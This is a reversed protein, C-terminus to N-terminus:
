LPGKCCGSLHDDSRPRGAPDFGVASHLRSRPLLHDGAHGRPQRRSLHAVDHRRIDGGRSALHWRGPDGDHRLGPPQPRQQDDEFDAALVNGSTNIGLMWDADRDDTQDVDSSGHTVLPIFNAIGGSGTTDAAGTGDRRFWTEITFEALDLKAPDGFTVYANSSGLDLAHDGPPPADHVTGSGADTFGTGGSIPVFQWDYGDQKLTLKIVGWTSSDYVESNADATAARAYLNSGGTGVTFQRIGYALDAVGDPTQPAFREYAHNHGNVVVDAGYEYLARWIAEAAIETGHNSGSDFKPRHWYAIVNKSANAALDTRLWQEQASGAGYNAESNLVIVHWYSGLDYSYWGNPSGTASAGFYAFYGASANEWDHNGISPYTRSKFAGWTPNYCNAFDTATGNPYANDGTTFVTADPLAAILAATDDARAVSCEGIDGAGVLVPDGTTPAEPTASAEASAPSENDSTDVATVAYYYTTGNVVASDTYTPSTLLAGNLPTGISVPSSTSRYVNYGAIDSETNATWSLTVHGNGASPAVDTPVGPPTTDFEIDFPAGTDWSSGSGTITGDAEPAVSDGVTVGSGEGMGWRAVLGSGSMLPGNISGRIEAGSLARNWVRAEDLAGDFHGVVQTAGGDPSKVMAGLAARQTTLSQVPEDVVLTAELRGDLYLRWTSGDYTAAAHHWVDNTVTTTGLVPHNLGPDNGEDGEEFDAAIVDTADDIGLVWNADVHSDDAEPAGHTVLPVFDPIGSTGTTNPTGTGDRRFWTEITFEALDLKAPDGLAVYASGTGLDLSYAGPPPVEPTASVEDSPNSENGSTDIATIAYFYTTGNVVSTDAYTPNTLLAGNLPTGKTVPPTTSRYVNYGALDTETNATWSLEVQGVAPTAGVGVPATPAITDPAGMSKGAVWTPGNTLTGTLGSGSTDAATSSGTGDNLGWRGVLGSASTLETSLAAQIQAESRAYNWVRPEDIVGSFFGICSSTGTGPIGSSLLSTGLAAHQTSDYRPSISAGLDRSQDLSGDLFLRWVRGDYTAAIHHWEGVPITSVGVVPFNQGAPWSGVAAYSEFDAAIAGADTVGLWYNLDVNSGDGEGCGKTLVPYAQPLATTSGLGGGGTGMLDGGAARKVWAELTFTSAGLAPAPGFTVYDNTGDFALATGADASPTAMTEASLESANTSSDVAAVAYYYTTGNVVSTDTYSSTVLPTAGNLPTGKTVSPTTSRYVNYGAIDSETNAAWTLSVVGNGATTGLGTPAAPPTLDPPLVWTPGNTLTGNPSGAISNVAITGTGENLGWRGILGTGTTLESTMAAQIEAQTRAVNWIRVEDVDGAFFGAPAAPPNASSSTVASGIAAHQISDWRPAVDVGLDLEQDLNGDLYLRWVRGDYTVAAHHWEGPGIPDTGAVPFNQGAPFTGGGAYTGGAYSEFDAVLVGDGTRIGLFYNMDRSNGDAEGRGKTM